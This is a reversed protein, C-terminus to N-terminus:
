GISVHRALWTVGRCRREEDRNGVTRRRQRSAERQEADERIWAPEAERLQRRRHRVCRDTLVVHERQVRSTTRRRVRPAHGGPRRQRSPEMQQRDRGESTGRRRIERGAERKDCARRRCRLDSSCVDSSWDRKPIEYATKQKFFFFSSPFSRSM